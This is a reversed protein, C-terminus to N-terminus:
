STFDSGITLDQIPAIDGPAMDDRATLNQALAIIDPMHSQARKELPTDVPIVTLRWDTFWQFYGSWCYDSWCDVSHPYLQM